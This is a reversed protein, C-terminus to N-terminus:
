AEKAVAGPIAPAKNPKIFVVRARDEVEASEVMDPSFEKAKVFHEPIAGKKVEEETPEYSDGPKYLNNRHFCERIARYKAVFM